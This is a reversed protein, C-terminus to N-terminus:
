LVIRCYWWGCFRNLRGVHGFRFPVKQYWVGLTAGAHREIMQGPHRLGQDVVLGVCDHVDAVVPIHRRHRHVVGRARQQHLARPVLIVDPYAVLREGRQARGHLGLLRAANTTV